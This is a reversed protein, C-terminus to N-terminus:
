ESGKKFAGLQCPTIRIGLTEAANSVTMKEVKLSRAIKWAAACSINGDKKVAARIASELEPPVKDMARVTKHKGESKPGYGFLGLQCRSLRIGGEDCANGIQRPTVKLKKALEFAVECPLQGQELVAQIEKNLTALEVRRWHGNNAAM